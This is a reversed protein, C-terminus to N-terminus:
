KGQFNPKRKEVFAAIGEQADASNFLPEILERELALAEDLPKEIGEYVARKIYAVAMTAGSALRQAYKETEELLSEAAFLRNVMGLELAQQPVLTEGTIMLELAKNIGILRPLRQTGGNGPLLGLTAEPLGLRYNGEAAFRLDCALAIEMGGGLAHGNIAAIFIKSSTAIKRLADHAVQVMEMNQPTSNAMFAKIDAGASFFKDLASKVIVAKAEADANAADIAADLDRMFGIEYSNAPPRNLTIYGISETRSYTVVADAM